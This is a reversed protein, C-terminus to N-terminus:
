KEAGWPLMWGSVLNFCVILCVEVSGQATVTHLKQSDRFWNGRKEKCAATTHKVTGGGQTHHLKYTATHNPGDAPGAGGTHTIITGTGSAAISAVKNSSGMKLSLTLSHGIEEFDYTTEQNKCGSGDCSHPLAYSPIMLKPPEMTWLNWDRARSDDIYKVPTGCSSNLYPGFNPNRTSGDPNKLYPFLKMILRYKSLYISAQVLKGAARYRKYNYWARNKLVLHNNVRACENPERFWYCTGKALSPHIVVKTSQQTCSGGCDTCDTNIDCYQKGAGPSGDDCTGDSTWKPMPSRWSEGTYKRTCTNTKANGGNPTPPPPPNALMTFGYCGMWQQSTCMQVCEGENMDKVAIVDGLNGANDGFATTDDGYTRQRLARTMRTPASEAEECYDNDWGGSCKKRGTCGGGGCYYNKVGNETCQLLGKANAGRSDQCGNILQPPLPAKMVPYQITIGAAVKSGGDMLNKKISAM